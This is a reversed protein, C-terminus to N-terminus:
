IIEHLARVSSCILFIFSAFFHVARHARKPAELLFVFRLYFFMRGCSAFLLASVNTISINFNPILHHYNGDCFTDVESLGTNKGDVNEKDILMLHNQQFKEWPELQCQVFLLPVILNKDIASCRGFPKLNM